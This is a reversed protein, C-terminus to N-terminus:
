LLAAHDLEVFIEPGTGVYNIYRGLKEEIDWVYAAAKETLFNQNHCAADVQDLHNMYITTPGNMRIARRVLDVDFDGIRRVKKTVSTYELFDREGGAKENIELWTTENSMPGSNGGVRIAHSRVVMAIQDVDQIAIGAESLAAAV